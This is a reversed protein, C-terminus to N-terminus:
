TAPRVDRNHGCEVPRGECYVSWDNTEEFYVQTANDREVVNFWPMAGEGQALIELSEGPLLTYDEGWPEVYVVWSRSRRNSIGLKTTFEAM